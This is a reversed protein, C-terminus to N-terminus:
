RMTPRYLLQFNRTATQAVSMELRINSPLQVYDPIMVMLSGPGVRLRLDGSATPNGGFQNQQLRVYNASSPDYSARIMLDGSTVVPCWIAYPRGQAVSVDGSVSAGSAVVVQTPSGM